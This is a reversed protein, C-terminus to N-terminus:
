AHDHEKKRDRRRLVYAGITTIIVAVTEGGPAPVRITLGGAQYESGGVLMGVFLVALTVVCATWAGDPRGDSNRLLWRPPRSDQAM